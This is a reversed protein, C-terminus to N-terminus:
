RPAAVDPDAIWWRQQWGREEAVPRGAADRAPEYRFREEILSCTTADLAASGSSRAVTCARARGDPGVMFRVTVSGQVQAKREAAPYDRNRIAGSRWRAPTGGAGDGSGGGGTGSGTGSAAAGAAPAADTGPALAAAVTLPPAIVPPPATVPTPEARAAPPAAPRAAAPAARRLLTVPAPAPTPTPTPVDFAVLGTGPPNGPAAGNGRLLLWLAAAHLAVVAAASVTRGRDVRM